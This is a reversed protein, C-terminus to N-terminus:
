QRSGKLTHTIMKHDPDFVLCVMTHDGDEWGEKDVGFFDLTLDSKAYSIGVYRRFEATCAATVAKSVAHDGPWADTGSLSINAVVERNHKTTCPVVWVDTESKHTAEDLCMGPEVDEWYIRDPEATKTPTPTSTTANPTSSSTSTTGSPSGTTTGSASGATQTGCAAAVVMLAGVALTSTRLRPM